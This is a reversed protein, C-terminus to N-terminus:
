SIKSLHRDLVEIIINEGQQNCYCRRPNNGGFADFEYAVNIGSRQINSCKLKKYDLKKPNIGHECYRSLLDLQENILRLENKTLSMISEIFKKGFSIRKHTPTYIKQGYAVQKYQNFIMRGYNTFDCLNGDTEVYFNDLKSLQSFNIRHNNNLRRLVEFNDQIIQMNEPSLKEVPFSPIVLLDKGNEFIYITEEAYINAITNLYALVGKFGGSLNFTFLKRDGGYYNILDLVEKTLESLGLKFNSISDTNLYKIKKIEASSISQGLNHNNEIALKLMEGVRQGIYTDTVILYHQIVSYSKNRRQCDEFYKVIANTEASLLSLEEKSKDVITQKILAFYHDILVKDTISLEEERKNLHKILLKNDELSHRTFNTFLSTGITHFIIKM